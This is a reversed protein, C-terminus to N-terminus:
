KMGWQKHMEKTTFDTFGRVIWEHGLDFWELIDELSSSSPRGRATLDLKLVEKVDRRRIAPQMSIHLRGKKDHMIFRTTLSVTEPQPLFRGSFKGSCYTVVKHAEGSGWGKGVEIHNVYTVECQVIEPPDIKQTKLFDCFKQWAETFEPKITDYRPYMEDGSVKKWNYHFRDKQVQILRTEPDNSFWSRIAPESVIEFGFKPATKDKGEFGEIIPDLPLQVSYKRFDSRITAWFLGHHATSFNELPKFQVGLVTEIVPPNTFEPLKESSKIM